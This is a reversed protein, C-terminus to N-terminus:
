GGFVGPNKMLGRIGEFIMQAAMSALILGTLRSLISLGTRSIHREVEGALYLLFGVCFIAALLASGVVLKERVLTIEGGMVLLAGTTAPGVTIPMAMPVVAIDHEDGAPRAIEGRSLSLGSLFLLVGAGVRFADITIGFISFVYEGFLLLGGCLVVVAATIRIALIRRARREWGSTMALFMSLVFFPTLLFFLKLFINIWMRM